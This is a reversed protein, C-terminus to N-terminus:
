LTAKGRSTYHSRRQADGGIADSLRWVGNKKCPAGWSGRCRATCRWLGCVSPRTIVTSYAGPPASGRWRCWACPNSYTSSPATTMCPCPPFATGSVGPCGKSSPGSSRWTTPRFALWVCGAVHRTKKRFFVPAGGRMGTCSSRSAAAAAMVSQLVTGNMLLTLCPPRCSQGCACRRVARV